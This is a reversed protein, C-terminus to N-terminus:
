FGKIDARNNFIKFLQSLEILFSNTFFINKKRQDVKDLKFTIIGNENFDSLYKQTTLKSCSLKKSILSETVNVEDIFSELLIIFIQHYNENRYITSLLKNNKKKIIIEKSIEVYERILINKKFKNKFIKIQNIM